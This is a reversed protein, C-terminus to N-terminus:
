ATQPPPVQYNQRASDSMNGLSKIMDNLVWDGPSWLLVCQSPLGDRGARGIQARLEADTGM